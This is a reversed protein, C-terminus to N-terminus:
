PRPDAAEVPLPGLEGVRAKVAAWFRRVRDSSLRPGLEPLRFEAVLGEPEEPNWVLRVAGEEFPEEFTYIARRPDTVIPRRVLIPLPPEPPPPSGLLVLPPPPSPLKLRIWARVPWHATEGGM